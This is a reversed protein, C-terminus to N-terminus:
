LQEAVVLPNWYVQAVTIKGKSNIHFVEKGEFSLLKGNFAVANAKWRVEATQKNITKEQISMNLETFTRQVGKFFVFLEQHGIYPRSGVPDEICGKESFLAVWQAANLASIAEFYADVTQHILIQNRDGKESIELARDEKELILIGSSSGYQFNTKLTLEYKVQDLAKFIPEVFKDALSVIEHGISGFSQAGIISASLVYHQFFFNKLARELKEFHKIVTLFHAHLAPAELVQRLEKNNKQLLAQFDVFISKALHVLQHAQQSQGGSAGRLAVRLPHYDALIMHELLLIHQGLYLLIEFIAQFHPTTAVLNHNNAQFLQRVAQLEQLGINFWCESVQHVVMFLADESNFYRAQRLQEINSSDLFTNYDLSHAKETHIPLFGFHERLANIQQELGLQLNIKKALEFYLTTIQDVEKAYQHGVLRLHEINKSYSIKTTPIGQLPQAFQHLLRLQTAIDQLLQQVKEEKIKKTPALANKLLQTSLELSLLGCKLLNESPSNQEKFISELVDFHIYLNYPSNKM